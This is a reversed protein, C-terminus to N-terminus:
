GDRMRDNYEVGKNCPATTSVDGNYEVGHITSPTGSRPTATPVDAGRWASPGPPRDPTSDARGTAPAKGTDRSYNGRRHKKARGAKGAAPGGWSTPDPRTQPVTCRTNPAM